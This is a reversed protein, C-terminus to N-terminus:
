AGFFSWYPIIITKDPGSNPGLMEFQKHDALLIAIRAQPTGFTPSGDEMTYETMLKELSELM